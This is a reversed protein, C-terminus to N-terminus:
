FIEEIERESLERMSLGQPVDETPGDVQLADGTRHRKVFCNSLVDVRRALEVRKGQHWVELSRKAPVRSPDYRLLVTEGVLAADVEFAIGDLTVTRDRGVKRKVEFLFCEGM